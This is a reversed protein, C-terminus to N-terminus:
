KVEELLSISAWRKYEANSGINIGGMKILNCKVGEIFEEAKELEDFDFKKGGAYIDLDFYMDAIDSPDANDNLEVEFFYAEWKIEEFDSERPEAMYYTVLKGLKCIKSEGMWWIIKSRKPIGHQTTVIEGPGLPTMIKKTEIVKGKFSM